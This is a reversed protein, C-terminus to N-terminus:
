PPSHAIGCGKRWRAPHLKKQQDNVGQFCHTPSTLLKPVQPDLFRSLNRLNPCAFHDRLTRPILGSASGATFPHQRRMLLARGGDPKAGASRAIVPGFQSTESWAFDDQGVGLALRRPTGAQGAEPPSEARSAIAALRWKSRIAKQMTWKSADLWAYLRHPVRRSHLIRRCREGALYRASAPSSRVSARRAAGSAAM